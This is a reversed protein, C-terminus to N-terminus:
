GLQRPTRYLYFLVLTSLALLCLPMQGSGTISLMEAYGTGISATVAKSGTPNAVILDTYTGGASPSNQVTTTVVGGGFFQSLSSM